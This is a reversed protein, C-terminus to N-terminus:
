SYIMHGIQYKTFEVCKSGISLRIYPESIKIIIPVFDTNIEVSFLKTITDCKFHVDNQYHECLTEIELQTTLEINTISLM